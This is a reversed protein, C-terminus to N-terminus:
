GNFREIEKLFEDCDDSYIKAEVPKSLDLSYIGMISKADVVYRESTLDVEFDYKTVINVFDKIDNFTNLRIKATKM